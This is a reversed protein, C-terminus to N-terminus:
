SPAAASDASPGYMSPVKGGMPRLYTSLQGRHHVSDFLLVWAVDQVRAEYAFNGDVFVKVKNNDWGDDELSQVMSEVNQSAERLMGVADDVDGFPVQVRHNLVGTAFMELIDQEHGILHGLLERASRAKPEPRWEIGDTPVARFARELLPAEIARRSVFFERNTM